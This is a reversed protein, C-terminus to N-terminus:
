TLATIADTDLPALLDVVRGQGPVIIDPAIQALPVLVFARRHMEPHPLHLGPLDCCLDGYLLLDLDLTRPGWREGDRMRGHQREIDLLADLLARAALTTQVHAAANIFDAQAANGWAPTRFNSSVRVLQTHPLAALAVTAAAFAAPVDGQNGGLGIFADIM